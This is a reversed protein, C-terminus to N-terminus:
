NPQSYNLGTGESSTGRYDGKDQVTISNYGVPFGFQNSLTLDVEADPGQVTNPDTYKGSIFPARPDNTAKLEDVLPEALYYFYPNNTAIGNMPNNYIQNYAIYADDDSTEMVGANFAESVIDEAKAPNLKSYRRGLRLLLSNAFKKWKAVDGGYILDDSVNDGSSSLAVSASKLEEYLDDYIVADDDYVPSYIGELFAKGAEFYPVDAYTDVLGMFVYAKWIRMMNRLNSSSADDATLEIGQVLLKISANGDEFPGVYSDNWRPI